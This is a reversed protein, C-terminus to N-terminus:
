GGGGVQLCLFYFHLLDLKENAPKFSCCLAILYDNRVDKKGRKLGTQKKIGICLMIHMKRLLYKKREITIYSPESFLMPVSFQQLQIPYSSPIPFFLIGQSDRHCKVWGKQKDQSCYSEQYPLPSKYIVIKQVLHLSKM